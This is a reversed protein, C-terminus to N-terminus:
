EFEGGLTIRRLFPHEETPWVVQGYFKTTGNMPPKNERAFLCLVDEIRGGRTNFNLTATKGSHGRESAIKGEFQILTRRITVEVSRLVTDGDTGDVLASFKTKVAVPHKVHKVEFDPADTVGETEIRGMVGHFNGQGELTGGIGEYEGLEVHEFTYKGSLPINELHDSDWPGLEGRSRIEGSPEPNRMALDYTMPANASVSRLILQHIDFRLPKNDQRAVELVANKTIMEGLRVSSNDPKTKEPSADAESGKEDRVPVSIRLGELIIRSVYGPRFLLDHYNAEIIVRRIAVLPPGATNSGRTLWVNELICGPHPFYTRRFNHVTIKGPWSQHISEVIHSASFPWHRALILGGIFVGLVIVTGIATLWRQPRVAQDPLFTTDSSKM